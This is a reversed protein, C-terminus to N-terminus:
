NELLPLIQEILRTTIHVQYEDNVALQLDAQRILYNLFDQVVEFEGLDAHHQAFELACQQGEHSACNAYLKKGKEALHTRREASIPTTDPLTMTMTRNDKELVDSVSVTEDREKVIVDIIVGACLFVAFKKHFQYSIKPLNRGGLKGVRYGAAAREFIGM